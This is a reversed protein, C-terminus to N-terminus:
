YSKLQRVWLQVVALPVGATKADLAARYVGRTQADIKFILRSM